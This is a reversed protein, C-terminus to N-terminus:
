DKVFHLQVMYIDVHLLIQLLIVLVFEPLILRTSNLSASTSFYLWSCSYFITLFVQANSGHEPKKNTHCMTQLLHSFCSYIKTCINSSNHCYYFSQTITKM